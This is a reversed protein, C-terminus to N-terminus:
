LAVLICGLLRIESFPASFHRNQNCFPLCRVNPNPAMKPGCGVLFGSFVGDLFRLRFFMLKWWFCTNFLTCIEIRCNMFNWSKRSLTNELFGRNYSSHKSIVLTPWRWCVDSISEYFEWFSELFPMSVLSACITSFHNFLSLWCVHFIRFFSRWFRHSFFM